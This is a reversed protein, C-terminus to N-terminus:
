RSSAVAAERLVEEIREPPASGVVVDEILYLPRSRSEDLARWVYEGLVGLMMMQTGGLILGAVMISSWGMVPEGIVYNYVIGAAYLFGLTGVLFGLYSMARIPFYSFSTVSDAVLKLKKGLSWGSSGHLRAEKVYTIQSQRFGMSSMLALISVNSENFQRFAELVQRDVLFFDAGTAPMQKLGVVNRMLWYYFNSFGLGVKGQGERKGRVAWVIQSGEKWHSLLEPITSPPDQMDAALVICCDGKADRMGCTLAKHSGYNTSFRFGRLRADSKAMEKYVKFTDDKSNDDILVWEWQVDLEAFVDQLARYLVPLNKAENYAPTVISILM